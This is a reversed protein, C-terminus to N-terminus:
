ALRHRRRWQSPSEGVRRRFARSLHSQDTFGCDVSILCLPAGTELMMSKAREVRRVVVYAAPTVGFSAKFSRAFHSASLRAIAALRAVQIAEPLEAEVYDRVKIVQWPALGNSTRARPASRPAPEAQVAAIANFLQEMAADAPGPSAGRPVPAGEIYRQDLRTETVETRLYNV